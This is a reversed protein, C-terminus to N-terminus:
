TNANIPLRVFFTTKEKPVSEVWISGKHNDVIQKVIFLGLGSGSENNTGHFAIKQFPKFLKDIDEPNIGDGKNEISMLCDNGETSILVVIDTQFYSFKVANGLLNNLVQEIKLLDASVTLTSNTPKFILNIHKNKAIPKLM